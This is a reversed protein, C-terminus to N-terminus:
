KYKKESSTLASTTRNGRLLKLKMFLLDKTISLQTEQVEWQSHRITPHDRWSKPVILRAVPGNGPVPCWVRLHLLPQFDHVDVFGWFLTFAQLTSHNIYKKIIFQVACIGGESRLRPVLSIREWFRGVNTLDVFLNIFCFDPQDFQDFSSHLLLGM